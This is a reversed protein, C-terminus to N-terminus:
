EAERVQLLDVFRKAMTGLKTTGNGQCRKAQQQDIQRCRHSHTSPNFKNTDNDNNSGGSGRTRRSSKFSSDPDSPRSVKGQPPHQRKELDNDDLDTAAGAAAAVRNSAVARVLRLSKMKDYDAEQLRYISEPQKRKRDSRLMPPILPLSTAPPEFVFHRGNGVQYSLICIRADHLSCVGPTLVQSKLLEAAICLEAALRLRVFWALAVACTECM